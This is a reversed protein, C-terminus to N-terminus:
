SRSRSPTSDLLLLGLAGARGGRGLVGSPVNDLASAALHELRGSSSSALLRVLHPVAGATVLPLRCAAVSSLNACLALASLLPVFPLCGSDQLFAVIPVIAGAALMNPLTEASGAASQSSLNGLVQM